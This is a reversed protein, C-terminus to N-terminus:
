CRLARAIEEISLVDFTHVRRPFGPPSVRRLLRWASTVRGRTWKEEANEGASPRKGATGRSVCVAAETGTLRTVRMELPIGKYSLTSHYITRFASPLINLTFSPLFSHFFFPLRLATSAPLYIPPRSFAVIARECKASVEQPRDDM